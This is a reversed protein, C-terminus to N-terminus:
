ARRELSHQKDIAAAHQMARQERLFFNLVLDLLNKTRVNTSRVAQQALHQHVRPKSQLQGTSNCVKHTGKMSNTATSASM